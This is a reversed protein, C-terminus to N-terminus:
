RTPEDDITEVPSVGAEFQALRRRASIGSQLFSIGFLGIVIWWQWRGIVDLFWRIQDEFIQGGIWLVILKAVIGVALLGAFWPARMRRYGVMMCVLNSGPMLLVLLWGARDTASFIISGAFCHSSFARARKIASAAACAARSCRRM